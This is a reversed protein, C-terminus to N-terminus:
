MPKTERDSVRRDAMPGAKEEEEYQSSDKPEEKPCELSALEDGGTAREESPQRAVDEPPEDEFQRQRVEHVM